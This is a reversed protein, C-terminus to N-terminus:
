LSNKMMAADIIADFEIAHPAEACGNGTSVFVDHVTGNILLDDDQRTETNQTDRLWRYRKADRTIKKAYDILEGQMRRGDDGLAFRLDALFSLISMKCEKADFLDENVDHLRDIEDLLLKREWSETGKINAYQPNIKNRIEQELEPTLRTM